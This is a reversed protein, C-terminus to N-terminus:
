FTSSSDGNRNSDESDGEDEQLSDPKKMIVDPVVNMPVPGIPISTVNDSAARAERELRAKERAEEVEQETMFSVKGGAIERLAVVVSKNGKTDPIVTKAGHLLQKARKSALQVLGFRNHEKTLCDEVTIRAM